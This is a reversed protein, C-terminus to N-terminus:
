KKLQKKASEIEQKLNDQFSKIFSRFKEPTMNQLQQLNNEQAISKGKYFAAVTLQAARRIVYSNSLTELLKENNALRHLLYRLMKQIIIQTSDISM